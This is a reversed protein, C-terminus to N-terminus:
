LQKKICFKVCFSFIIGVVSILGAYGRRPGEEQDGDEGGAEGPFGHGREERQPVQQSPGQHLRPREPPGHHDEPLLCALPRLLTSSLFM